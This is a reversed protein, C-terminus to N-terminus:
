CQSNNALEFYGISRKGCSTIRAPQPHRDCRRDRYHDCSCTARGALVGESEEYKLDGKELTFNTFNKHFVRKSPQNREPSRVGELITSWIVSNSNWRHDDASWGWM